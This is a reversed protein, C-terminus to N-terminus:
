KRRLRWVISDQQRRKKCLTEEKDKGQLEELRVQVVSEQARRGEQVELLVQSSLNEQIPLSDQNLPHVQVLHLEQVEQGVRVEQSLQEEQGVPVVLIYPFVRHGQNGQTLLPELHVLVVRDQQREQFPQEGRDVQVVLIYPLGQYRQNGQFLLCGRVLPVM